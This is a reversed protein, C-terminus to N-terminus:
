RVSPETWAPKTPPSPTPSRNIESWYADFRHVLNVMEEFGLPKVLYSNAGLEYARDVDAQLNSSTLVVVLLRKLEEQARVWQLVEFGDTGPMRLDLLLLFPQPSRERNSHSGRGQLYDIAEEGNRVVRLCDRLGAKQFAREVLLVDNLDDEVLLIFQNKLM